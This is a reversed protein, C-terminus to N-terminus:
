LPGLFKSPATQFQVARTETSQFSLKLTKPAGLHFTSTGTKPLPFLFSRFEHVSRNYYNAAFSKNMENFANQGPNKHLRVTSKTM